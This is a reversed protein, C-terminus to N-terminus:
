QFLSQHQSPNSALPSPSWRPHSPQIVESVRHVHTQTFEPLQYRAKSGGLYIGQHKTWCSLRLPATARTDLESADAQM